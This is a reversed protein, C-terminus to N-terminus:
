THRLAEAPNLRTARSMPAYSAVLAVAAFLLATGGFTLPDLPPVGFLLNRLLQSTTAALTLGIAVGSAAFRLGQGLLLRLVDTRAAGLAVRIGIERWRRTVTYAMVGYIGIAALLLGILGLSGAIVAAIRQPMLALGINAELKRSATIPVNPNVSAVLARLDAAISKEPTTRV